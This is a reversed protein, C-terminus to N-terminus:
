TASVFAKVLVRTSGDARRALAGPRIVKVVAPASEDTGTLHHALPDYNIAEGVAGLPEIGVTGATRQIMNGISEARSPDPMGAVFAEWAPLLAAFAAETRYRKNETGEHTAADDDSLLAELGREHASAVTLQKLFNPYASSWVPILPRWQEIARAGFRPISDVILTLTAACAAEISPSAAGKGSSLTAALQKNALAISPHLLLAPFAHWAREIVGLGAKLLTASATSSAGVHDAAVAIERALRALAEAADSAGVPEAFGFLKPAENMLLNARALDTSSGVVKAFSDGVFSAWDPAAYRAWSLLDPFLATSIRPNLLAEEAYARAWPTKVKALAGIAARQESVTGLVQLPPPPSEAWRVLRIVRKRAEKVGKSAAQSILAVSLLAAAEDAEQSFQIALLSVMRGAEHQWEANKPRADALLARLRETPHPTSPSVIPLLSAENNM